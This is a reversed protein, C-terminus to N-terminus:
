KEGELAKKAINCIEMFEAAELAKKYRDREAIADAKGQVYGDMYAKDYRDPDTPKSM